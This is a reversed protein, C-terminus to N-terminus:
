REPALRRRQLSATALFALGSLTFAAMAGVLAMALPAAVHGRALDSVRGIILPAPANGLLATSLLFYAQLTTAHSRPGMEDIAAAIPGSYVCFFFSAVATLSLFAMQSPIFLAVLALPVSGLFALGVVLAHGGRRRRAVADGWSGGALVGGTGCVLAVSALFIGAVTPDIRRERLLLTPMWSILASGGFTGLIGGIVSVVYVPSALYRRAPLSPRESDTPVRMRLSALALLLGPAGAIFLAGRWSLVSALVGSTLLALVSGGATGLAMGVNYIALARGRRETPADACLLANASPGFAGEGVGVLARTVLLFAYNPALASGITALSWVTAGGAIVARAGFRRTAPGSLASSLAFVLLNGFGLGGLAADSLALDRGVLPFLGYMIQRDFYNIFSLATLVRLPSFTRKVRLGDVIAASGAAMVVVYSRIRTVRRSTSGAFPTPRM